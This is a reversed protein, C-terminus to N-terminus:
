CTVLFPVFAHFHGHRASMHLHRGRELLVRLRFQGVDANLERLDDAGMENEFHVLKALDGLQDRLAAIVDGDFRAGHALIQVARDILHDVLHLTLNPLVLRLDLVVLGPM